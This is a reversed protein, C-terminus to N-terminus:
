FIIVKLNLDSVQRKFRERLLKIVRNRNVSNMKKKNEEDERQEREQVTETRKNRVPGARGGFSVDQTNLIGDYQFQYLNNNEVKKIIAKSVYQKDEETKCYEDIYEQIWLPRIEKIYRAEM